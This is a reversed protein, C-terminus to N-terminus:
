LNQHAIKIQLITSLNKAQFKIENANKGQFNEEITVNFHSIWIDFLKPTLQELQDVKLHIDTLNNTYGGTGLIMQSWFTVLIPLHEEIKIKVVDTFIYNIHHDNLLKKYFENVLFYLDKQTQIDNMKFIKKLDLWKFKM